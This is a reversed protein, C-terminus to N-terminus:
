GEIPPEEFKKVMQIYEEVKKLGEPSLGHMSRMLKVRENVMEEDGVLYDRSVGLIDSLKKINAPTPLRSGKEFQSIATQSIEMAQALQAQNWGKEFRAKKLNEAFNSM